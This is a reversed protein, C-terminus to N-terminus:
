RDFDGKTMFPLRCATPVEDRGRSEKYEEATRLALRFRWDSEALPQSRGRRWWNLLKSLM